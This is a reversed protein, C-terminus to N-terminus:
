LIFIINISLLGLLLCSECISYRISHNSPSTNSGYKSKDYMAVHSFCSSIFSLSGAGCIGNIIQALVILYFSLEYSVAQVAWICIFSQGLSGVLSVLLPIEYDLRRDAWSALHIISFIAPMLFAVNFIVLKESTQEQVHHSANTFNHISNCVTENYDNLCLKRYILGHQSILNLETSFIYLFLAPYILLVEWYCVLVSSIRSRLTM